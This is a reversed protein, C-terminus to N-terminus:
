QAASDSGQVAKGPRKGSSREGWKGPHKGGRHHPRAQARQMEKLVALKNLQSSDLVSALRADLDARAQQHAARMDERSPRTGSARAQQRAARMQERQDQFIKEVETKQYDNMDLLVALRDIHGGRDPRAPADALAATGILCTLTLALVTIPNKM